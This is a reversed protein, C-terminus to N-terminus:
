LPVTTIRNIDKVSKNYQDIAKNYQEIDKKSSKSEKIADFRKQAKRLNDTKLFFDVNSPYTTEGEKKYFELMKVAAGLLDRDGDYAEEKSLKALGEEAFSVLTMGHQELGAIDKKEVAARAYGNQRNVKGAIRNIVSYYEL